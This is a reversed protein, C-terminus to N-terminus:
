LAIPALMALILLVAVVIWAARKWRPGPSVATIWDGCRPCQQTDEHVARGCSPCSLLDAEPDGHDDEVWEADDDWDNEPAM